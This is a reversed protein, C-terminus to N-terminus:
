WVYNKHISVFFGHGESTSCRMGDPSSYCRIGVYRPNGNGAALNGATWNWGYPLRPGGFLESRRHYYSSTGRHAFYGSAYYPSVVAIVGTSLVGCVVYPDYYGKGTPYGPQYHCVINSTPSQWDNSRWDSRASANAVAVLAALIAIILVLKKKV